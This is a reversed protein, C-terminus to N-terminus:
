LMTTKAHCCFLSGWGLIRIPPVDCPGKGHCRGYERSRATDREETENAFMRAFVKSRGSLVSKYGSAVWIGRVKFQVDALESKDLAQSLQSECVDIGSMAAEDSLSSSVPETRSPTGAELFPRRDNL